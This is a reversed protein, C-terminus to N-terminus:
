FGSRIRPPRSVSGVRLPRIRHAIDKDDFVFDDQRTRDHAEEFPAAERGAEGHIRRRGLRLEILARRTQCDKIVLQVLIVADFKQAPDTLKM